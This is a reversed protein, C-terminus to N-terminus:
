PRQESWAWKCHSIEADTMTPKIICSMERAIAQRKLEAQQEEAEARRANTEDQRRREPVESSKNPEAVVAAASSASTPKEGSAQADSDQAAVGMMVVGISILIPRITQM